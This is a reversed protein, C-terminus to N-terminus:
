IISVKVLLFAQDPLLNFGKFRRSVVHGGVSPTPITINYTTLDANMAAMASDKRRM